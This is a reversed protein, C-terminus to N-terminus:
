VRPVLDTAQKGSPDNKLIPNGDFGLYKNLTIAERENGSLSDSSIFRGVGMDLWRARHYNLGTVSDRPEGTYQYPNPDTGTRSLPEGFATYSYTDTVAASTDTLVRISGIGEPHYYRVAGEGQGEGRRPSPFIEALLEDGARVYLAVLEGDYDTEAVVHSLGGETDVLYNRIVSLGNKTTITQVRNGDADYTYQVVSGDTTTAKILRNDFDWEYTTQTGAQAPVVSQLNGEDDWSYTDTGTTLLRDRDDFTSTSATGNKNHGVRNGVDDYTFTESHITASDKTINESTLRYLDDYGYARNTGDNETIATRIGTAGLTYTYSQIVTNDAKKTTLDLLRNQTDFTYTTTVGNPYSITSRRGSNGTYTIPYIGGKPDTVTDLRGLSDYNYSTTHRATGIVATLATRNGNNDYAYELKTGDPQTLTTSGCNHVFIESFHWNGFVIEM